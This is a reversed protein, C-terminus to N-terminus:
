RGLARRLQGIRGVQNDALAAVQDMAAVLAQHDEPATPDDANDILLQNLRALALATPRRAAEARSLAEQAAIWSESGSGGAARALPAAIGYAAEFAADGQRAEAVLGALQDRLAPRAAVPPDVRIPEEMPLDEVARRALSPFEGPTTCGSLVAAVAAGITLFRKM